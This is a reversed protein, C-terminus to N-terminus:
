HWILIIVQLIRVRLRSLIMLSNKMNHVGMVKLDHKEAFLKHYEAYVNYNRYWQKSFARSAWNETTNYRNLSDDWNWQAYKGGNTTDDNVQRRLIAQGSIKLEPLINWDM